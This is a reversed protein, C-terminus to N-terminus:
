YSLVVKALQAIASIGFYYYKIFHKQPNGQPQLVALYGVLPHRWFANFIM